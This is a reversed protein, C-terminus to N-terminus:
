QFYIEDVNLLSILIDFATARIYLTKEDRKLFSYLKPALVCTALYKRNLVEQMFKFVFLVFFRM